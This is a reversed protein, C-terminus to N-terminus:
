GLTNLALLWEPHPDTIDKVEAIRYEQGEVTILTEAKPAVLLASKSFRIATDAEVTFGGDRLTRADRTPTKTARFSAGQYSCRHGYADLRLASGRVAFRRLNARLNNM